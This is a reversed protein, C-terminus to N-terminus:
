EASPTGRRRNDEVLEPFFRLFRAELEADLVRIEEIVGEFQNPFRIRGAIRDLAFGINDLHAYANFWDHEVMRATTVAMRSPMLERGAALDQYVSDIFLHKPIRTFRAWHRLLYHDFLVDLAIGSFRRRQASFLPKCALVDPHHDTFADVARHNYLGVRVQDSLADVDLGQAFDGLLNGVRSEVTPQSLFLHALHNM